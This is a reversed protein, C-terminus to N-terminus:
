GPRRFRRLLVGISLAVSVAFLILGGIFWDNALAPPTALNARLVLWHVYTLFLVLLAAFGAMHRRLYAITAGRRVPALWQDRNPINIRVGPLGLLLGPLLGLAVPLVTVLVLMVDVYAARPMFGNAAGSPGFHSAVMAPLATSSVWVYAGACAALMLLILRMKLGWRCEPPAILGRCAPPHFSVPFEGTEPTTTEDL